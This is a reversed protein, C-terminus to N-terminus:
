INLNQNAQTKNYLQLKDYMNKPSLFTLHDTLAHDEYEIMSEQEEFIGDPNM